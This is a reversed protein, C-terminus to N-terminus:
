KSISDTEYREYAGMDPGLTGLRSDGKIDFPFRLAIDYLGADKAPSLTDLALNNSQYDVFFPDQLNISNKFHVTDDLDFEEPDVKILCHEFVFPITREPDENITFEFEKNGYVICNGFYAKEVPRM